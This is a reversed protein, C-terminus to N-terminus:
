NEKEIMDVRVREIAFSLIHLALPWQLSLALFEADRSYNNIM